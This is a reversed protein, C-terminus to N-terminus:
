SLLRHVRKPCAPNHQELDFIVAVPMGELNQIEDDQAYKTDARAVPSLRHQFIQYPMYPESTM